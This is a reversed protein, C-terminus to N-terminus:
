FNRCPGCSLVKWANAFRLWTIHVNKKKLDVRMMNGDSKWWEEVVLWMWHNRYVNKFYNPHWKIHKSNLWPLLGHEINLLWKYTYTHSLTHKIQWTNTCASVTYVCFVSKFIIYGCHESKFREWPNQPTPWYNHKCLIIGATRTFCVKKRFHKKGM